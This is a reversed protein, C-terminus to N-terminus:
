FKSSSDLSVLSPQLLAIPFQLTFISGQGQNNSLTITGDHAQMIKKALNLGLGFGGTARQRSPDVRYFPEFIRQHEEPPIGQGHDHVRVTIFSSDRQVLVKIPGRDSPSHKLANELLNILAMRVRQQDIQVNLTASPCVLVIGPPISSYTDVVEQVLTNLDTERFTLAGHDSNLRESELLENLMGDLENIAKRAKMKPADEDIYEAAVKLRALPSRLEHSVDVLLRERNRIMNHIEQSMHNFSGALRGLEDPHRVAVKYTLNGKGIEGVGKTLWDIPRFLQRVFFYSGGLISCIMVLLLTISPWGLKLFPPTPGFFLFRYAERDRVVFPRGRHRGFYVSNDFRQNGLNELAEIESVSPGPGDTTWEIEDSKISIRIGFQEALNSIQDKNPPIGITGIITSIQHTMIKNLNEKFTEDSEIIIRFFGIVTVILVLTTVLYISFLKIFISCPRLKKFYSAFDAM